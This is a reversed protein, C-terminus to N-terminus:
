GESPAFASRVVVPQPQENVHLRFIDPRARDGVVDFDYKGRAIDDMDLEATLICEEMFSSGSLIQGLPNIISSGGRSIV